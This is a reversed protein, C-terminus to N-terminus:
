WPPTPRVWGAIVGARRTGERIQATEVAAGADFGLDTPRASATARRCAPGVDRDLPDAPPGAEATQGPPQDRRARRSVGAVGIAAGYGSMQIAAPRAM